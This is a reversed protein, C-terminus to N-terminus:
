LRQTEFTSDKSTGGTIDQVDTAWTASTDHTNHPAQDGAPPIPSTRTPSRPSRRPELVPGAHTRTSTARGAGARGAGVPHRQVPRRAPREGHVAPGRQRLLLPRVEPLGPRHQEVHLQLAVALRPLRQEVPRQRREHLRLLRARHQRRAAPPRRHRDGLRHVHRREFGAHLRDRQQNQHHHGPDSQLHRPVTPTGLVVSFTQATTDYHYTGHQVTIEADQVAVSLVQNAKAVNKANTTAATLNSSSSGDITRAGAMAAADAANQCRPAPSWSWAWM